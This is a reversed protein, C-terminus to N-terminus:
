ETTQIKCSVLIRSQLAETDLSRLIDAMSAYIRHSNFGGHRMERIAEEKSWGQCVIRYSAIIFGTRDAGHWCHVLVPKPSGLILRLVHELDDQSVAGANMKYTHTVLGAAAITADASTHARLNIVTAIGANLLDRLDKEGSPYHARYLDPTVQYFNGLHADPVPQAWAAPREDTPLPTFTFCGSLLLVAFLVIPIVNAM